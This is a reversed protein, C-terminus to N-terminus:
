QGLAKLRLACDKQSLAQPKLRECCSGQFAHAIYILALLIRQMGLQWPRLNCVLACFAHRM